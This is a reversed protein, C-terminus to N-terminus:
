DRNPSIVYVNGELYLLTLSENDNFVINYLEITTNKTSTRFHIDFNNLRIKLYQNGDWLRTKKPGTPYLAFGKLPNLNNLNLKEKSEYVKKIIPNTPNKYLESLPLIAKAHKRISDRFAKQPNEQLLTLKGHKSVVVDTPPYFDFSKTENVPKSETTKNLMGNAAFILQNQLTDLMVYSVEDRNYFVDRKTIKSLYKARFVLEITYDKTTIQEELLPYKINYISSIL